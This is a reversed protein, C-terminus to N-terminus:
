SLTVITFLPLLLFLSVWFIFLILSILVLSLLIFLVGSLIVIVRRILFLIVMLLNFSLMLSWLPRLLASMGLLLVLLFIRFISKRPSTFAMLLPPFRLGLFTDFLVLILSLFSIVFVLSLLPSISLIM